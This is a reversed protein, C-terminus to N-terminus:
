YNRSFRPSSRDLKHPARLEIGCCQLMFLYSLRGLLLHLAPYDQCTPVYPQQSIQTMLLTRPSESM